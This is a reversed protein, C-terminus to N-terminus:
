LIECEWFPLNPPYAEKLCLFLARDSAYILIYSEPFNRCLTDHNAPQNCLEIIQAVASSDIIDTYVKASNFKGNLELM